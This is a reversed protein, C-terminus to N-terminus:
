QWIQRKFRFMRRAIASRRLVEDSDLEDMWTLITATITNHAMTGPEITGQPDIINLAESLTDYRENTFKAKVM